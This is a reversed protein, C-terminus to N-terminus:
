AAKIGAVDASPKEIRKKKRTRNIWMIMGTIPFSTGLLCVILGILKSPWGYISAIHVPKFTARVRQGLNRDEWKITGAVTATYRDVFYNDSASEHVANDRLVNVSYPATSDKPANVSYFVAKPDLPQITALVADFGILDQDEKFAIVPPKAGQMSSGTVTYIGKNFWEFSWALGTFAFVFLFLASYFGLVLHLDHNVRKWGANWKLALRQKLINRTKPWWLIIGTILIVLFILTSVGVIMKGVAGKLLWRHLSMMSYFFSDNYNYLELVAGTYPNLFATKRGGGEPKKGSKGEKKEPHAFSFEVSRSPDNYVKVGNIKINPAAARLSNELDALTKREGTAAVFYRDRHFYQQLEPEFVLVAGTFCTVMIVLGAALGLYLHIRRFFIKM